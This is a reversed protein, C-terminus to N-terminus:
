AGCASVRELTQCGLVPVRFADAEDGRVRRNAARGPLFHALERRVREQALELTRRVGLPLRGSDAVPDVGLRPGPELPKTAPM